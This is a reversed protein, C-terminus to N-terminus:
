YVDTCLLRRSECEQNTERDESNWCGFIFIMLNVPLLSFECVLSFWTHFGVLVVPLCGLEDCPAVACLGLRFDLGDGQISSREWIGQIWTVGM